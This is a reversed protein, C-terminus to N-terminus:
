SLLTYRYNRLLAKRVAQHLRSTANLSLGPNTEIIQTLDATLKALALNYQFVSNEAENGSPTIAALKTALSSISALLHPIERQQLPLREKYKLINRACEETATANENARLTLDSLISTDM